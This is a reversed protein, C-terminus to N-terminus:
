MIKLNNWENNSTTFTLMGSQSQEGTANTFWSSGRDSSPGVFLWRADGSQQVRLSHYHGFVAIRAKSMPMNGHSQGKWWDGLKDSRGAQHGHAVGIQTGSTEFYLSEHYPDPVQVTVHGFADENLTLANALMKAIAIGYDAHVDGAPSKPGLRHAGHNSSVAAYRVKPALPAFMKIGELMVHSAAVVQHPLDLDNTGLQSSTSYINEIVDGADIMVIEAPRFERAFEAARAFSRMTQGYTTDSGGNWDVKGLQLDAPVVVLTEPRVASNKADPVYTFNRIDDIVSQPTVEGEVKRRVKFKYRHNYRTPDGDIMWHTQELVGVIEVLEPDHGFKRLINENTIDEHIVVSIEGENGTWTERHEDKLETVKNQTPSGDKAALRRRWNSITSKNVSWKEALERSGKDGALDSLFLENSLLEIPKTLGTGGQDPELGPV